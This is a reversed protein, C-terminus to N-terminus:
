RDLVLLEDRLDTARVGCARLFRDDAPVPDRHDEPRAYMFKTITEDPLLCLSSRDFGCDHWQVGVTKGNEYSVSVSWHMGALTRVILTREVNTPDRMLWRNFQSLQLFFM